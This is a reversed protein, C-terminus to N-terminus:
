KLPSIISFFCIDNMIKMNNPLSLMWFCVLNNKPKKEKENKRFSDNVQFHFYSFIQKVIIPCFSRRKSLSIQVFDIFFCLSLSSQLTLAVSSFLSLSIKDAHSLLLETSLLSLYLSYRGLLYFSIKNVSFSYAVFKM